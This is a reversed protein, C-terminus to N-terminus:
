GAAVAREIDRVLDSSQISGYNEITVVEGILTSCAQVHSGDIRVVDTYPGPSM